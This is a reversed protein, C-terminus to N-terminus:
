PPPGAPPVGLLIWTLGTPGIHLKLRPAAFGRTALMVGCSGQSFVRRNMMPETWGDPASLAVAIASHSRSSLSIGGPLEGIQSAAAVVRAAYEGPPVSGGSGLDRNLCDDRWGPRTYAGRRLV